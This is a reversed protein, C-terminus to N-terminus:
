IRTLTSIKWDLSAFPGTLISLNVLISRGTGLRIEYNLLTLEPSTCGLNLLSATFVLSRGSECWLSCRFLLFYVLCTVFSWLRPPGPSHPRTSAPTFPVSSRRPPLPVAGSTRGSGQAPRTTQSRWSLVIGCACTGQSVGPSEALSRGPKAKALEDTLFRRIEIASRACHLEDESHREGFLLRRDELFTIVRRAVEEDGPVKEWNLSFGFAGAGTPRYTMTLGGM